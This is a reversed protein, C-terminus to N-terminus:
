AIAASINKYVKCYQEAIINYNFKDSASVAILSRNFVTYSVIVKIMAEALQEVNESEVLIGNAATIVESIGGVNSTIVPLGCCLAELIVCPLNEFKSFMLLASSQQMERAIADYPIAGKFFVKKDVGYEKAALILSEDMQGVMLLEFDFGREKVQRCAKLIGLPNKMANMGSPHIFRFKVPMIEKYFFTATNVVNPIVKYNIKAFHSNITDGLNKTVPLVLHAQALIKKNIKKQVPNADYINQESGPFYGTWHETVIYPIRFKKKLWNALIGAKFAVHVHVVAPMGNESLFLKINKKYLRLYQAQSILKDLIEIGTKFPKYYCRLETIHGFTNKETFINNTIVGDNDKVVYIVYQNTLSGIAHVQRQIFDGNFLDLKSPYWSPLVLITNQPILNM